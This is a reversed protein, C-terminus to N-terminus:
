ARAKLHQPAEDQLNECTELIVVDRIVVLPATKRGEKKAGRAAQQRNCPALGLCLFSFSFTLSGTLRTKYGGRFADAVM